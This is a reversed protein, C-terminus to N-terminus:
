AEMQSSSQLTASEMRSTIAAVEESHALAEMTSIARLQHGRTLSESRSSSSRAVTSSSMEKSGTISTKRAVATSSRDESKDRQAAMRDKSLTRRRVLPSKQALEQSAKM